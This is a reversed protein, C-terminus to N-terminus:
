SHRVHDVLVSCDARSVQPDLGCFSAAFYSCSCVQLSALEVLAELAKMYVERAKNIRQGGKSLGALDKQQADVMPEFVPLMVGVVNDTGMKLKFTPQDVAEIIMHSFLSIDSDTLRGILPFLPLPFIPM